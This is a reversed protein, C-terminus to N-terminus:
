IEQAPPPLTAAPMLPPAYDPGYVKEGIRTAERALREAEETRGIRDYLWGLNFLVVALEWTEKGAGKELLDVARKFYREADDFRGTQALLLGKNNLIFQQVPSDPGYAAVLIGLAEDYRREAENPQGLAIDLAARMSLASAVWPHRDGLVKRYIALPRDYLKEADGLKGQMRYIAALDNSLVAVCMSETGVAQECIALARRVLEAASDTQSVLLRLGALDRLPGVIRADNAGFLKEVIALSKSSYGAAEEYHRRLLSLRTLDSYSEAVFAHDAGYTAQRIRLADHYLADAKAFEARDQQVIALTRLGWVVLPHSPGLAKRYIALPREALAAAEAFRGQSRLLYILTVLTDAVEPHDPGLVKERGALARRLIPEAEAVRGMGNLSIALANLDALVHPNDPGLTPERIALSQRLLPEAEAYRHTWRYVAAVNFLADAILQHDPPLRAQRTELAQSAFRLSEPYRGLYRYVTALYIEVETAPLSDGFKSRIALAELFPSEAEAYRGARFLVDGLTFLAYGVQPHDPGFAGRSCEVARRLLPEAADFRRQDKYLAGLRQLAMPLSMDNAPAVQALLDIARQLLAEAGAGNSSAMAMALENAAIKALSRGNDDPIRDYVDLALRLQHESEGTDARLKAISALLTHVRILQTREESAAHRVTLAHQASALAEDLRRQDRYFVAQSILVDALVSATPDNLEEAVSVAGKYAIEADAPQGNDASVAGLRQLTRAIAVADRPSLLARLAAAVKVATVAEAFRKQARLVNGLEDAANAAHGDREKSAGNRQYAELVARLHSEAKEYDRQQSAIGGALGHLYATYPDDPGRSTEHLALAREAAARGEPLRQQRRYFNAQWGLVKVVEGTGQQGEIEEAAGLAAKYAADAESVKGAREFAIAQALLEASRQIVPSGVPPAARDQAVSLTVQGAGTALFVLGALALRKAYVPIAEPM